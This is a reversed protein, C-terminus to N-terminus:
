APLAPQKADADCEQGVRVATGLGAHDLEPREPPGGWEAAVKREREAFTQVARIREESAGMAKLTAARKDMVEAVMLAIAAGARRLAWCEEAADDGSRM